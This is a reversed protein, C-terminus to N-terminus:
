IFVKPIQRLRNKRVTVQFLIDFVMTLHGGDLKFLLGVWETKEDKACPRQDSFELNLTEWVSLNNSFIELKTRETWTSYKNPVMIEQKM